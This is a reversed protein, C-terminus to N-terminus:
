EITIWIGEDAGKMLQKYLSKFTDRSDTLGGVVKNRGVLICGASDKASNGCHILVGDFGNVRCLRPLRGGNAHTKYFSKCGFRPSVTTMDVRYRGTPIATMTPIKVARIEADTMKDTLRRDKDECTDCFYKGDVYIKGITYTDKKYKRILKLEM